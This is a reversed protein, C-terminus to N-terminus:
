YKRGLKYNEYELEDLIKRLEIIIIDLDNKGKLSNEVTSKLLLSFKIYNLKVAISSLKAELSKDIDEKTIKDVEKMKKNLIKELGLEQVEKAFILKLMEEQIM